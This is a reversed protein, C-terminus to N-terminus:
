TLFCRVLKFVQTMEADSVMIFSANDREWFVFSLGDREGSLLLEDHFSALPKKKLFKENRFIVLLCRESQYSFRVVVAPRKRMIRREVDSVAFGPDDRPFRVAVGSFDEIRKEAEALDLLAPQASGTPTSAFVAAAEEALANIRPAGSERFIRWGAVAVVIALFIVVIALRPHFEVVGMFSSKEPFRLAPDRNTTTTMDM